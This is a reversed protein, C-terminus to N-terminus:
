ISEIVFPASVSTCHYQAAQLALLVREYPRMSETAYLVGCAVDEGDGIASYGCLSEGVHYDDQICFLRGQFGVLFTGGSEQEAEKKAYGGNKFCERVADIFSTAMYCSLHEPNDELPKEYVPHKLAYQLLQIMRFSSCAGILFDGNRFVKTDKRVTLQWSNSGASDGGIYVKDLHVLGVICTM